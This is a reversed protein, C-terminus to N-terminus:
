NLTRGNEDFRAADPVEVTPLQVASRDVHFVFALISAIAVYLDDRVEQGVKSTFYVARALLPYELVPLQQEAALERIARALEGKGKAVVIPARDRNRDYRLAVAFHVPNTLVVHAEAVGKKVNNKLIERARRRIAGKMEPSGETQKHEDKIEQKSMRLKRMLQFLQLPVDVGAILVLGFALTLFLASILTGVHGVAGTVDEAGLAAISNAFHWIAGAGIAGVLGVKLLAKGLEILGQVGFIRGLGSLPNMRSAKFSFNKANFHLSGLAAQGGIAAFMTVAFMGLLPVAIARLLASLSELPTFDMAAHRSITLGGKLATRLSGAFTPGLFALYMAGLMMVMATSLDRSKLINGDEAADKRRKATPAETKDGAEPQDAM